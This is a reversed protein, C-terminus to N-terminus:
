NLYNSLAEKLIDGRLNRAVIKGEKNILFNAPIASVGYLQAAENKWGKLDSVHPWELKDDAVAKLWNSRGNENDLSVGFVTFGKDKFEHYAKVVNPNENRCPGCWSAWFDLLVYQGRFDSLKLNNGASDTQVFDPAISGISTAKWKDIKAQTEKGLETSDLKASFSNFLEQAENGDPYYGVVTSFLTNLAFYSDPKSKIYDRALEKEINSISDFKANLEKGKFSKEEASLTTDRSLTMWVASFETKIARLPKTKENWERLDNNIPSKIIANKISDPSNVTIKGPEVFIRALDRLNRSFNTATDYNVILTSSSPKKVEGTFEFTGNKVVVSDIKEGSADRSLLYVKVPVNAGIKGKILYANEAIKQECQNFLLTTACLAALLYIKKM